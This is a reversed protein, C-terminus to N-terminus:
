WFLLILGHLAASINHLPPSTLDAIRSVTGYAIIVNSTQQTITRNSHQRHVYMQKHKMFRNNFSISNNQQINKWLCILLYMIAVALLM